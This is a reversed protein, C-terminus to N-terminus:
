WECRNDLCQYSIKGNEGGWVFEILNMILCYMPIEKGDNNVDAPFNNTDEFSSNSALETMYRLPSLVHKAHLPGLNLAPGEHIGGGGPLIVVFIYLHTIILLM